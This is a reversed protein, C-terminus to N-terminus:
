GALERRLAETFAEPADVHPFHSVGEMWRLRSGPILARLAPGSAPPVMPDRPAYLLSTPVPFRAGAEARGALIALLRRQARWDITDRLARFFAARGEPTRLPAAYVEAEEMSKRSEDYYHVNRHAWRAPDRTVLRDLAWAAGPLRTALHLAIHRLHPKGPAHVVVLRSLLDIRRLAVWIGLWGGLSNGVLAPRNLDLARLLAAIWDAVLEPPMPGAPLSAEGHGLLDPVYVTHDRALDHVVYRFSYASTMLGHLLVLPPGEGLTRVVTHTDGLAPLRVHVRTVPLEFFRHPPHPTAPLAEFRLQEFPRM